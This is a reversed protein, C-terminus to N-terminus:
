YNPKTLFKTMSSHPSRLIIYGIVLSQIQSAYHIFNSIFSNIFALFIVSIQVRDFGIQINIRHRINMNLESKTRM